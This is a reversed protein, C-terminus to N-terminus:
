ELLDDGTEGLQELECNDRSNDYNVLSEYCKLVDRLTQICLLVMHLSPSNRVQILKIVDQFIKLLLLLQNITKDNVHILLKQQQKNILIRKIIIFSKLISELSEMISLWRIKITQHVTVGGNREIKKNLRSIKKCQPLAIFVAKAEGSINDISVKPLLQQNDGKLKLINQKRKRIVPISTSLDEDDESEEESSLIDNISPVGDKQEKTVTSINSSTTIDVISMSYSSKRTKKASQFFSTKLINNLRHEFCFLPDYDRFHTVFNSDRDCLINILTLDNIGFELLHAELAVFYILRSYQHNADVFSVNLGLYLINKYTGSWFDSSITVARQQLPEILKQKICERYSDALDYITKATTHRGRLVNNADVVGYKHGVLFGYFTNYNRFLHFYIMKDISILEQAIARFGSDEIM